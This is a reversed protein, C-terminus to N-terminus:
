TKRHNCSIVHLNHAHKIHLSHRTHVLSKKWKLEGDDKAKRVKIGSLQFLSSSASVEHSSAVGRGSRFLARSSSPWANAFKTLVFSSMKQKRGLSQANTNRPERPTRDTIKRYTPTDYRGGDCATDRYAVAGHHLMSKEVKRKPSRSLSDPTVTKKIPTHKM